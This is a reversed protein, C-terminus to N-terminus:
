IWWLTIGVAVASVVLNIALGAPRLGAAADEEKRDGGGEGGNGGGSDKGGDTPGATAAAATAGPTITTASGLGLPYYFSLSSVAVGSPGITVTEGGVVVTTSAAGPGVTYTTGRIVVLSPALQTLTAGGVIEYQTEGPRARPGGLVTGGMTVGAPGVVVPEGNIDVTTAPAAPGYTITTSRIVVVSQGIATVLQGGVVVVETQQPNASAPAPTLRAPAPDSPGTAVAIGGPGISVIRDGVSKTTAQGDLSFTTGEVVVVRGSVIVPVGGITATQAPFTAPPAAGAGAGTGPRVVTAGAGVVRTPEITFVEGGVRVIQTRMVPSDTFTQDNIVVVGPRVSVTVPPGLPRAGKGDGGSGGTPNPNDNNAVAGPTQESGGPNKVNFRTSAGSGYDPTEIHPFVVAPNKDTTIFTVPPLNTAIPQYDSTLKPKESVDYVTTLQCTKYIDLPGTSTCRSLTLRQPGEHQDTDIRTCPAPTVIPPYPPTYDKPNGTWTITATHTISYVTSPKLLDSAQCASRTQGGSVTFWSGTWTVQSWTNINDINDVGSTVRGWDFDVQGRTSSWGAFVEPPMKSAPYRDDTPPWAIDTPQAPSPRDFDVSTITLKDGVDAVRTPIAPPGKRPTPATPMPVPVSISTSTSTSTPTSTSTSTSTSEAPPPRGFDMSTSTIKLSADAARTPIVPPGKRPNPAPAAPVAAGAGSAAPAKGDYHTETASSAGPVSSSTNTEPVSSSSSTDSVSASSSTEPVPTSSSTGHSLPTGSGAESLSPTTSPPPPPPPPPSTAPAASISSTSCTLCPQDDSTPSTGTSSTAISSTGTGASTSSSDTSQTVTTVTDLASSTSASSLTSGSTSGNSPLTGDASALRRELRGVRPAGHFAGFMCSSLAALSLLAVRAAVM